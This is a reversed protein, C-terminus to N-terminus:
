VEPLGLISNGAPKAKTFNGIIREIIPQLIENPITFGGIKFGRPRSSGAPAPGQLQSIVADVFPAVFQKAVEPNKQLNELFGNVYANMLDFIHQKIRPIAFNKLGIGAAFGFSGVALGYLIILTFDM